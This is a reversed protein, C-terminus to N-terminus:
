WKPSYDEPEEYNSNNQPNYESNVSSVSYERGCSSCGSCRGDM